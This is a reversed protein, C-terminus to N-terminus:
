AGRWATTASSGSSEGHCGLGTEADYLITTVCVLDDMRIGFFSGSVARQSDLLRVLRGFVLAHRAMRLGVLRPAIRFIDSYNLLENARALEM